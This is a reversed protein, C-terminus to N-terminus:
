FRFAINPLGLYKEFNTSLLVGLNTAILLQAEMATNASCFITFKEFNVCQGSNLEYEKLVDKLVM